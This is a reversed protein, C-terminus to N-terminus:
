RLTELIARAVNKPRRTLGDRAIAPRLRDASAEDSEGGGDFRFISDVM